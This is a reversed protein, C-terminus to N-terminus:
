NHDDEISGGFFYKALVFSMVAILLRHKQHIRKEGALCCFGIGRSRLSIPERHRM